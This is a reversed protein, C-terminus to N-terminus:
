EPRVDDCNDFGEGLPSKKNTAIADAAGDYISVLICVVVSCYVHGFLSYVLEDFELRGRVVFNLGQCVAIVAPVKVRSQM